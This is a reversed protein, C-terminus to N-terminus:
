LGLPTNTADAVSQMKGGVGLVGPQLPQGTVGTVGPTNAGPTGGRLRLATNAANQDKIAKKKQQWNQETLFANKEDRIKDDAKSQSLRQQEASYLTAAASIAIATIAASM